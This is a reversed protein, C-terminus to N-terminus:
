RGQCYGRCNSECNTNGQICQDQTNKAEKEPSFVSTRLLLFYGPIADDNVRVLSGIKSGPGGGCGGTSPRFDNVHPERVLLILSVGIIGSRDPAPFRGAPIRTSRESSNHHPNQAIQRKTLYWHNSNDWAWINILQIELHHKGGRFRWKKACTRKCDFDLPTQRDSSGRYLLRQM